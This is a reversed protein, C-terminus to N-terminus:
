PKGVVHWNGQNSQCVLPAGGDGDCSDKGAEGGACVEGSRLRFHLTQYFSYTSIALNFSWNQIKNKTMTTTM